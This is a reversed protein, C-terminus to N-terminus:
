RLIVFREESDSNDRWSLQIIEVSDVIVALNDPSNNKELQYVISKAEGYVTTDVGTSNYTSGFRYFYTDEELLETDLFELLVGAQFSALDFSFLPMYNSENGKSREILISMAEKTGESMDGAHEVRIQQEGMANEVLYVSDVDYANLFPSIRVRVINSYASTDLIANVKRVRYFYIGGSLIENFDNGDTYSITSGSFTTAFEEFIQTFSSSNVVSREILYKDSDVKQSDQWALNVNHIEGFGGNGVSYNAILNQPTNAEGLVIAQSVNSYNSVVSASIARVRYYYVTNSPLNSSTYSSINANTTDLATFSFNNGISYEIVFGIENDSNDDWSLQIESDSNATAIM